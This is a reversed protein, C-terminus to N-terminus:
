IVREKLEAVCELEMEEMSESVLSFDSDPSIMTTSLPQEISIRGQQKMKLLIAQLIGFAMKGLARSDRNRHRRVGMDVQAFHSLGYRTFIDLIHGIEVGYGTFFPISEALSRRLAYEGALPQILEALKPYFMALLPRVLIETVRGGYNDARMDQLDLPREYCAKVFSIDASHILPAIIGYVFRSDFNTIDADVCAIIDGSTVFMSKWLATGKGLPLNRQPLVENINVVRAGAERAKAATKDRSECDMVVMEDVLGHM